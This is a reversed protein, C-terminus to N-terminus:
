LHIRLQQLTAICECFQDSDTSPSAHLATSLADSSLKSTASLAAIQEAGPWQAFGPFRLAAQKNVGARAAAFLAASQDHQWQYRAAALWHESSARRQDRKIDLISGFRRGKYILWALLLIASACLAEYANRWLLTTLSPMNVGYLFHVPQTPDILEDLLLAHDRDGIEKHMWISIDSLVTLKGTGVSFQALHVGSKNGIFFAPKRVDNASAHDREEFYPQKLVSYNSFEAQIIHASGPLQIETLDTFDPSACQTNPSDKSGDLPKPQKIKENYERLRQSIKKEEWTDDKAEKKPIPTPASEPEVEDDEVSDEGEAAKDDDDSAWQKTIHYQALLFDDEADHDPQVILHGGQEVWDLIKEALLENKVANSHMLVLTGRGSLDERPSLEADSRVVIHQEELYRQAALFPNRQAAESWPGDETKKYFEVRDYLAYFGVAVLLAILLLPLNIRM